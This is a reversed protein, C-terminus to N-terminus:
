LGKYTGCTQCVNLQQTHITTTNETSQEVHGVYSYFYHASQNSSLLVM